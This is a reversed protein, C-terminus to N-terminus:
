VTNLLDYVLRISRSARLLQTAVTYARSSNLLLAANEALTHVLVVVYFFGTQPM